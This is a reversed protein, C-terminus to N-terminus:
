ERREVPSVTVGATVDRVTFRVQMGHADYVSISGGTSTSDPYFVLPQSWTGSSLAASDDLGQFSTAPIEDGATTGWDGPAFKMGAPLTGSFSWPVTTDAPKAAQVQQSESPPTLSQEPVIIFRQGDPEFRFHYNVDEKIARMKAAALKVQVTEVVQSMQQERYLM